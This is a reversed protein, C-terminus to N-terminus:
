EYLDTAWKRDTKRDVNRQVRMGRKIERSTVHGNSKLKERVHFPVDKWPIPYGHWTGGPTLQGCFAIGRAAAYRQNGDKVSDNLLNTAMTNPWMNWLEPEIEGFHRGAVTHTWDPCITGSAGGPTWSKHKRSGIYIMKWHAFQVAM